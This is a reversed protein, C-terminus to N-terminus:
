TKTVNVPARRLMALLSGAWIMASESTYIPTCLLDGRPAHLVEPFCGLREVMRRYAELEMAFRPPDFRELVALLELGLCTWIADTQWPNLRELLLMKREPHPGKAYRSPLPHNLRASDMQRLVKRFLEQAEVGWGMLGVAFPAINADASLYAGSSGLDDVFAEGRLFHRPVLDTYDFRCLPNPIGLTDLSLSMLHLMSCSYCSCDRVTYDQAESFHRGRLLLGTRPDVAQLGFRVAERQLLGAYRRVLASSGLAALGSVFYALGDPSPCGPPFDFLRGRADVVLAFRGAREYARLAFEYTQEVEDAFGAAILAPAVRGFDRAWVEQYTSASTRLYRRRPDWCARIVQECIEAASGEFTRLFFRRLWGTRLMRCGARGLVSLDEITTYYRADNM